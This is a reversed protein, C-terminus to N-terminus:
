TQLEFSLGLSKLIALNKERKFLVFKYSGVVCIQDIKLPITSEERDFSSDVVMDMNPGEVKLIIFGM